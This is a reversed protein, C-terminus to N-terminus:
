KGDCTIPCHFRKAGRGYAMGVNVEIDLEHEADSNSNPGCVDTQYTVVYQTNLVGSIESYIAALDDPSPASYYIGGTKTAIAVLAEEDVQSGLGVTFVPVGSAVAHNIV